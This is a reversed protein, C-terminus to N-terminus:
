ETSLLTALLWASCRHYRLVSLFPWPTCGALPGSLSLSSCDFTIVAPIQHIQTLDLNHCDGSAVFGKSAESWGLGSRCVVTSACWERVSARKLVQPKFRSGENLVKKIKRTYGETGCFRHLCRYQQGRLMLESLVVARLGNCM